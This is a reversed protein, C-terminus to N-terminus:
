DMYPLTAYIYTTFAQVSGVQYIIFYIFVTCVFVPIQLYTSIAFIEVHIGWTYPLGIHQIHEDITPENVSTLLEKFLNKNFNEFRELLLGIEAHNEQDGILVHSLTM